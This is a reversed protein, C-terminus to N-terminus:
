AVAQQETLKARQALLKSRQEQSLAREINALLLTYPLRETPERLVNACRYWEDAYGCLRAARAADDRPAAVAFLQINARPM